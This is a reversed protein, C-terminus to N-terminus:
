PNAASYAGFNQTIMSNDAPYNAVVRSPMWYEGVRRYQMTVNAFRRAQLDLTASSVYWFEADIYLVFASQGRTGSVAYHPRGDLLESTVTTNQEGILTGLFSTLNTAIRINPMASSQPAPTAVAGGQNAASGGMTAPQRPIVMGGVAPDYRMVFSGSAQENGPPAVGAPLSAGVPTSATVIQTVVVSYPSTPATANKVRTVIETLSPPEGSAAPQRLAPQGPNGPPSGQAKAITAGGSARTAGASRRAEFRFLLFFSAIALALIVFVIRTKAKTSFATREKTM